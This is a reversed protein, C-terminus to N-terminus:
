RAALEAQPATNLFRATVLQAGLQEFAGTMAQRVCARSRRVQNHKAFLEDHRCVSRAARRVRAIMVDAGAPRNLDLDAYGVTTQLVEPDGNAPRVEAATAPAALVLLAGCLLYAKM